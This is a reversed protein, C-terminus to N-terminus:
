TDDLPFTSVDNGIKVCLERVEFAGVASSALLSRYKGNVLHLLEDPIKDIRPFEPQADANGDDASSAKLSEPLSLLAWAISSHFRPNDYYAKQHISELM